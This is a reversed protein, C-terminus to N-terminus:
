GKKCSKSANKSGKYVGYVFAGSVACVLGWAALSALYGTLIIGGSVNDLDEDTLEESAAKRISNYLAEMGEPEYELGAASLVQVFSTLDPAEVLKAAFAPDNNCLSEVQALKDKMYQENIEM